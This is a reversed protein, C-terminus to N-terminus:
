DAEDVAVYFLFFQCLAVKSSAYLVSSKLPFDISSEFLLYNWIVSVKINKIKPPPVSIIKSCLLFFFPFKTNAFVVNLILFFTSPDIFITPVVIQILM